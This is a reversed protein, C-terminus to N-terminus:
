QDSENFPLRCFLLDIQVDHFLFKIIPVYADAEIIIHNVSPFSNRYMRTKKWCTSWCVSFINKVRFIKLCLASWILIEM